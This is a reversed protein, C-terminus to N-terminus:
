RASAATSARVKEAHIGTKDFLISRFGDEFGEFTAIDARLAAVDIGAITKSADDTDGLRLAALAKRLADELGSLKGDIRARVKRREEESGALEAKRKEIADM